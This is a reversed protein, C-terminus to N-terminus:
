IKAFNEVISKQPQDVGDIIPTYLITRTMTTGASVIEIDDIRVEVNGVPPPPNTDTLTMYTVGLHIIAVWGTKGGYTTKMWKDGARHYTENITAVWVEDGYVVTGRPITILKATLVDHDTRLSMDNTSSVANYRMTTGGIPLLLIHDGVSREQGPINSDIPVNVIKDTIWMASSGGGDLDIGYQCGYAILLEAAQFLTIGDSWFGNVSQRGDVVILVTKGEATVGILTRPEPVYWADSTYPSVVGNEVLIRKGAISNYKPIRSDFKEISAIHSSSFNVWPEWESQLSYVIGESALLGVPGYANYDGGNTAILAGFERAANSVTKLGFKTVHWKYGGGIVVTSVRTGYRYIQHFETNPYPTTHIEGDPPPPTTGGYKTNFEVLTGNFYNMDIEVTEVGYQSGIAPTGYQWHTVKTWPAPILVYSPNSTYWALWLAKDRLYDYEAANTTSNSHDKFWYYGTYLGVKVGSLGAEVRKMFRVVNALGGYNGGYSKEWDAYVEMEPHDNRLLGVVIDAQTDPSVRDDYFYYVGRRVNRAKAETYNRVFQTDIWTNQGARIIAADGMKNWDITGQYFSVDPFNKETVIVAGLGSISAWFGDWMSLISSHPLYKGAYGLDNVKM